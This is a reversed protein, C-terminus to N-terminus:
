KSDGIGIYKFKSTCAVVEGEITMEPKGISETESFNCRLYETKTHSIRLGKGAVEELKSNAEEKTETFLVINVAFLICWPVTKWTSKSIEEMIVTFIFPSLASGKGDTEEFISQRPTSRRSMFGFQNERIVTERRIRKEIVREWLKM